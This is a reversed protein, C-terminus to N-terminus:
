IYLNKTVKIPFQTLISFIVEGMGGTLDKRNGISTGQKHEHHSNGHTWGTKIIPLRNKEDM